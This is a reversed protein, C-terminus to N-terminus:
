GALGHVIAKTSQYLELYGAYSRNHIERVAPDPLVRGAPPNWAPGDPSVAGTALGALFADGYAAGITYTPIIQEQGVVDSVIQTWLGGTTGGGVAVLRDARGGAARIAEINHRVGLATAELVARYLHGANHRLTLGAIVGRALPDFIPTREGAFYPLMLLGDAGAPVDRALDTLEQYSSGTLDRLWTTVAGSTAMGAALNYTGPFAGVTGWLRPSVRREGLVEVLFMTTGYMIM